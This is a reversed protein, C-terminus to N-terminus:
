YGNNKSRAIFLTVAIKEVDAMGNLERSIELGDRYSQLIVNFYHDHETTDERQVNEPISQSAAQVTDAVKVNYATVIKAGRQAALKTIIAKDGKNLSKLENHVEEPAFLSYEMGESRVAYMFYNGYQSKGTVPEDYLLEIEVPKNTKLELKNRQEV